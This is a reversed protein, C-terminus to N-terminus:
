ALRLGKPLSEGFVRMQEEEDLRGGERVLQRYHEAAHQDELWDLTRRRLAEDIDRYRDQTRRALQMVALADNPDSQREDLLATLWQSSTEPPVVVNLPGYVPMRAGLRGLTWALSPRLAQLKRKPLLDLVIQGLEIKTALPLLELSGLLRWVEISEQPGFQVDAGGGQGGTMRKHLGRIPALLQDALARQQGATFGGAIRRWLIWWETRVVASAHAM